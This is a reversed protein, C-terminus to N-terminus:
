DKLWFWFQNKLKEELEKKEKSLDEIKELTKVVIKKVENVQKEKMEDEALHFAKKVLESM